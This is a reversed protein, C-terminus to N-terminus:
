RSADEANISAELWALYPAAGAVIPVALVEPVEYSHVRELLASLEAFQRRASKIIVLHESATEIAGQWRYYSRVGPVISACAALGREVVVQALKEAEEQSACTSLVVIKDTM